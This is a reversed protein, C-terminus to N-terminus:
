NCGECGCGSGCDGGGCSDCGCGCGGSAMRLLESVEENTAPRNTKVEGVFNLDCGALPHNMDMVVVDEKVEVVSGNIHQGENTMLPVVAGEVIRESDFKGNIIFIEKPLDIVHDEDYEGYAEAAPITFDFKEGAQLDKIQAEFPELTLGLGSIFQFPHEAPAEETFEKEGNEITYLKYAVTIYKNEVTEM